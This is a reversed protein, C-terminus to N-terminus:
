RRLEKKAQNQQKEFTQREVGKGNGPQLGINKMLVGMGM